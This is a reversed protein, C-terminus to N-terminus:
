VSALTTFSVLPAMAEATKVFESAAASLHSWVLGLKFQPSDELPITVLDISVLTRPIVAAFQGTKVLNLVGASEQSEAMLMPHIGHAEMYPIQRELIIHQTALAMPLRDLDSAKLMKHKALPHKPSVAAVIEDAFVETFKLEERELPLLLLGLDISGDLIGNEIVDSTDSSLRVYVQPHVKQFKAIVSPLITSGFASVAGIHLKGSLLGKIENIEEQGFELVKVAQRARALFTEGAETLHVSRGVRAFLEIGLEEELQHIQTSLTPQSVYLSEAAKTFHLLEAARIFYRLQRLEM